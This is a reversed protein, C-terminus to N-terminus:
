CTHVGASLARRTNEAVRAFERVAEAHRTCEEAAMLRGHDRHVKALGELYAMVLALNQNREETNM